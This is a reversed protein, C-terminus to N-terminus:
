RPTEWAMPYLLDLVQNFAAANKGICDIIQAEITGWRCCLFCTSTEAWPLESRAMMM